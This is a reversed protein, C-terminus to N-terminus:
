GRLDGGHGYLVLHDPLGGDIGAVQENYEPTRQLSWRESAAGSLKAM